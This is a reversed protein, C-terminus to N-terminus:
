RTQGNTRDDDILEQARAGALFALELRHRLFLGSASGDTCGIGEKSAFWEDRERALPSRLDATQETTQKKKM